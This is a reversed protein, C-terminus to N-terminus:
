LHFLIIQLASKLCLLDLLAVTVDQFPHIREFDHHFAIINELTKIQKSNYTELLKKM